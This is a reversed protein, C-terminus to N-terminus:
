LPKVELPFPCYSAYLFELRAPASYILLSPRVQGHGWTLLSGLSLRYVLCERGSPIPLAPTQVTQASGAQDGRHNWLKTFFSGSLNLSHTLTSSAFLVSLLGPVPPWQCQCHSNLWSLAAPPREKGFIVINLIDLNNLVNKATVYSFYGQSSTARCPTLSSLQM